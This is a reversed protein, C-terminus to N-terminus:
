RYMHDYPLLARDLFSWFLWRFAFASVPHNCHNWSFEREFNRSRDLWLRSHVSVFSSVSVLHLKLWGTSNHLEAVVCILNLFALLWSHIINKCMKHTFYRDLTDPHCISECCNRTNLIYPWTFNIILNGNGGAHKKAFIVFNENYPFKCRM